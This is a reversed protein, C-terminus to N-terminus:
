RDSIRQYLVYDFPYAHREDKEHPIRSVERWNQKDYEPFYVDGEVSAKIETIYLNHAYPLALRYIDAGGIVMAEKEGNAEAIRFAEGISHVITCGSAMYDPRRTVVINTRKPLPRYKDPLSEYNKRGLIVHHGKTKEMFFKMDDPLRWPLDNDKGIVGNEAVAVVLSIKM